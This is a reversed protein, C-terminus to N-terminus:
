YELINGKTMDDLQLGGLNTLDIISSEILSNCGASSRQFRSVFTGRAWGRELLNERLDDDSRGSTATSTRPRDIRPKKLQLARVLLTKWDRGLHFCRLDLEGSHSLVERILVNISSRSSLFEPEIIIINRGEIKVPKLKVSPIASGIGLASDEIIQQKTLRAHTKSPSSSFPYSHFSSCLTSLPLSSSLLPLISSKIINDITM